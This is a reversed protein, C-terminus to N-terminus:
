WGYAVGQNLAFKREAYFEAVEPAYKAWDIENDRLVIATLIDDCIEAVRPSGHLRLINADGNLQWFLEQVDHSKLLEGIRDEFSQIEGDTAVYKDMLGVSLLQSIAPARSRDIRELFASYAEVRHTFQIQVVAHRAHFGAGFYAGVLSFFGALTATLLALL